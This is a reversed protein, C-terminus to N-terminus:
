AAPPDEASGDSADGLGPNPAALLAPFDAVAPPATDEEQLRLQNRWLAARMAESDPALGRAAVAEATLTEGEHFSFQGDPSRFYAEVVYIDQKSM